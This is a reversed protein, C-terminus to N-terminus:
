KRIECGSSCPHGEKTPCGAAYSGSLNNKAIVKVKKFMKMFNTNSNIGVRNSAKRTVGINKFHKRLDALFNNVFGSLVNHM